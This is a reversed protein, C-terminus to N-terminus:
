ALSQPSLTRYLRDTMGLGALRMLGVLVPAAVFGFGIPLPLLLGAM